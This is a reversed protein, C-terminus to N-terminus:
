LENKHVIRLKGKYIRIISELDDIRVRLKSMEKYVWDIEAAFHSKVEEKIDNRSLIEVSRGMQTGGQTKPPIPISLAFKIGLGELDPRGM